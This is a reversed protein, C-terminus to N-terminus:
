SRKGRCELPDELTSGIRWRSPVCTIALGQRLLPFRVKALALELVSNRRYLARWSQDPRIVATSSMTDAM